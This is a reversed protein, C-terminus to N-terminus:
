FCLNHDDRYDILKVYERLAKPEVKGESRWGYEDREWLRRIGVQDVLPYKKAIKQIRKNPDGFPDTVRECLKDLLEHNYNGERLPSAVDIIEAIAQTLEHDAGLDNEVNNLHSKNPIGIALTNSWVRAKLVKFVEDETVLADLTKEVWTRFEIGVLKEADVPRKKTHKYGYITPMDRGFMKLTACAIDYEIYFQKRKPGYDRGKFGEIIVYVDDETPIRVTIEWEDSAREIYGRDIVRTNARDLVFMSARHKPSKLRVSGDRDKKKRTNEPETWQLTSLLEISAGKLGSADLLAQVQTRLEEITLEAQGKKEPAKRRMVYHNLGNLAHYGRLEQGTDDLYFKLASSVAVQSVVHSDRLMYFPFTDGEDFLKVHSKAWDEWEKPLPLELTGLVVLRVRKEWDTLTDGEISKLTHSVYEDLLETFRQTIITKTQKTYNLAERSPNFQLEGIQFTLTGALKRMCPWIDGFANPDLQDLRMRYPVCGMVALWTGNEEIDNVYDITGHRLATRDTPPAPLECNIVPRPVFHQFLDYAKEHFVDIDDENVGITIEIGTEWLTGLDEEHMLKMSGRDDSGLTACYVSKKGDHWSTVTFTDTYAFGSKCGIGLTGVSNNDNRKTSKGYKTYNKLVDRQSLGPGWDRIRLTPDALTPLTVHIPLEGKGAARHADWANSSYERLVALPKDSYMHSRLITMLHVESEPDLGFSEETIEGGSQLERVPENTKM